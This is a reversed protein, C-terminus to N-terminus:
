RMSRKAEKYQQRLSSMTKKYQDRYAKRASPSNTGTRLRNKLDFKANKMAHKISKLHDGMGYKFPSSAGPRTYPTFGLSFQTNHINKRFRKQM